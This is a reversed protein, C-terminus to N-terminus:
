ALKTAAKAAFREKTRSAKNIKILGRKVAKDMFSYVQSLSTQILEAESKELASEFARVATRVRSKFAKNILNRKANQIMRKEATPRKTKKAKSETM